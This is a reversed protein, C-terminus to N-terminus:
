PKKIKKTSASLTVWEKTLIRAEEIKERIDPPINKLVLKLKGEDAALIEQWKGIPELIERVKAFDYSFRKQISRAIVGDEGFVRDFGEQEMYERIKQKLEIMREEAAGKTKTLEFYEKVVKGIDDHVLRNAMQSKSYLHKWAPCMPKYPCWDCLISPKPEFREGTARTQEIEDITTMVDETVARIEEATRKTSLKEGHRVFYLSLKIQEPSLTPWKKQLGLSYLSLQLDNDVKEQPPLRRSTKYDIIEYRGDDLKDIRDIKGALVHTKGRQDDRILVEFKSEIDIVAFNWPANRAYFNKLMRLGEDRYAALEAEGSWINSKVDFNARYYELVQDLTPYLPSRGFMFKLADHVLTGFVAEKNKPARIRDIEQFKYKQPCQKYTDLASYSTRM